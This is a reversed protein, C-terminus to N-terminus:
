LVTQGTNWNNKNDYHWSHACTSGAICKCVPCVSKIVDPKRLNNVQREAMWEIVDRFDLPTMLSIEKENRYDAYWKILVEDKKTMNTNKLRLYDAYVQTGNASM